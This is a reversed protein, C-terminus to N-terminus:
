QLEASAIQWSTSRHLHIMQEASTGGDTAKVAVTADDGSVRVFQLWVSADALEAPLEMQWRDNATPASRNAHQTAADISALLLQDLQDITIRRGVSQTERVGQSALTVVAATVLAMSGLALIMTVGRHRQTM